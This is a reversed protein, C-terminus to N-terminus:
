SGHDVLALVTAASVAAARASIGGRQFVAVGMAALADRTSEPLRDAVIAQVHHEVVFAAIRGEADRTGRLADWGVQHLQWRVIDLGRVDAIVVSQASPLAGSVSGDDGIVLLVRHESVRCRGGPQAGTLPRDFRATVRSNGVRVTTPTRLRSSPAQRGSM